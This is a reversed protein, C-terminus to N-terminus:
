ERRPPKAYSPQAVLKTGENISRREFNGTSPINNNSNNSQSNTSTSNDKSTWSM